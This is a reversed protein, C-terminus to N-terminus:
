FSHYLTAFLLISSSLPSSAASVHPTIGCWASVAVPSIKCFSAPHPQCPTFFLIFHACLFGLSNFFIIVNSSLFAFESLSRPSLKIINHGIYCRLNRLSLSQLFTISYHLQFSCFLLLHEPHFVVAPVALNVLSELKQPM